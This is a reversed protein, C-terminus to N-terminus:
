KPDETKPFQTPKEPTISVNRNNRRSRLPQQQNNLQAFGTIMAEINLLRDLQQQEIASLERAVKAALLENKVDQSGQKLRMQDQQEM